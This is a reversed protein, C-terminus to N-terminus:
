KRVNFDPLYVMRGGSPIADASLGERYRICSEHASDADFRLVARHMYGSYKANMGGFLERGDMVPGAVVRGGRVVKGCVAAVDARVAFIDPHYEIEYFGLHRTDKVSVDWGNKEAFHELARKGAEYAYRKSEPNDSTSGM